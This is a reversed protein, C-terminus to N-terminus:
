RSLAPLSKNVPRPAGAIGTTVDRIASRTRASRGPGARSGCTSTGIGTRGRRTDAAAQNTRCRFCEGTPHDNRCRFAWPTTSRRRRCASDASGAPPSDFDLALALNNSTERAGLPEFGFRWALFNLISNPDFQTHEVHNRRARPGILVCPVRCGLRGDNGAAAEAPTVPAFPPPVHDYFGGWEDYNIIMLTRAWQPGSRLIDYVENLFAQGNRIDALPHDDRSIGFAEEADTGVNDIFTLNALKGVAVDASLDQMSYNKSFWEYKDGWFATYPVDVYYYAVSRGIGVMRDWVTPLTSVEVTNALRDTQGAHMYIRNPTTSALIGSFYRDCVTWQEVCGKFFPLSDATYYGISFTDGAPQTLLFGNMAGGNVHRRGGDYRNEMMVVVVHDIGSEEPDPLRGDSARSVASGSLALGGAVAATARPHAAFRLRKRSTDAHRRLSTLTATSPPL